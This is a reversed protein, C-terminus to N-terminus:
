IRQRGSRGPAVFSSQAVRKQDDNAYFVVSRYQTGMDPGQRDLETPDHGVSFYIQLIRGQHPDFLIQVSEAHGTHGTSVTEYEATDKAGGSYGALVRTVGTVHQFVAQLGWFCGAALVAMQSHDDRRRTSSAAM